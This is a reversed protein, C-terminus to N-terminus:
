KCFEKKAGMCYTMTQCYNEVAIASSRHQKYNVPHTDVRGTDTPTLSKNNDDFVHVQDLRLRALKLCLLAFLARAWHIGCWYCEHIPKHSTSVHEPYIHGLNM